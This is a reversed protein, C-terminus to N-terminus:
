ARHEEESSRQRPNHEDWHRWKCGKSCFKQWFVKPQYEKRCHRNRCIRPELLRKAKPM